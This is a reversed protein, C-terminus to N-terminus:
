PMIKLNLYSAGFLRILIFGKTMSDLIFEKKKIKGDFLTAKCSGQIASLVRKQIKILM